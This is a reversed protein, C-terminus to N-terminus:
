VNLPVVLVPMPAEKIMSVTHGGVFIREAKSKESVGIVALSAPFAESLVTIGLFLPQANTVLHVTTDESILDTISLKLVELKAISEEDLAKYDYVKSPLDTTERPEYSHYLIIEKIKLQRSLAAAYTAATLCSASFNTAIIITEIGMM